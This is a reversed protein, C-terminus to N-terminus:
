ILQPRMSKIDAAVGGGGSRQEGGDGSEGGDGGGGAQRRWRLRWQEARALAQMAVKVVAMVVARVAAM